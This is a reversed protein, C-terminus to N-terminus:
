ANLFGQNRSFDPYDGSSAGPMFRREDSVIVVDPQWAEIEAKAQLAAQQKFAESTHRKTDMHVIKVEVPSASDDVTGDDTLTADLVGLIGQTIGDEV